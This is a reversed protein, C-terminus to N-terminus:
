PTTDMGTTTQMGMGTTTQGGMGTTTQMGQTPTTGTMQGTMTGGDPMRHGNSSGGTFALAGVIGAAFLALAAAIVVLTQKSM